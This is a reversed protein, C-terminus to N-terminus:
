ASRVLVQNRCPSGAAGDGGDGAGPTDGGVHNLSSGDQGLSLNVPDSVMAPKPSLNLVLVAYWAQFLLAPLIEPTLLSTSCM